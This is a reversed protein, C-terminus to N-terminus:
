EHGGLFIIVTFLEEEGGEARAMDCLAKAHAKHGNIGRGSM